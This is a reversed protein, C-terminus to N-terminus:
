HYDVYDVDVADKGEFRFVVRWNGSVDVAWAGKLRGKLPHLRLGPLNMDRPEASADLRALVLRLRRAHEPRIGRTNGSEFFARLGKHRWRRIM